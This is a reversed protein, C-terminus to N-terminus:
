DRRIAVLQMGLLPDPRWWGFPPARGDMDGALPSDVSLV